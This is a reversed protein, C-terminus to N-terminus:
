AFCTGQANVNHSPVVSYGDVVVLCNRKRFDQAVTSDTTVEPCQPIQAPTVCVTSQAFRPVQLVCAGDCVFVACCIGCVLESGGGM